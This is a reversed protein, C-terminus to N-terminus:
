RLYFGRLTYIFHGTITLSDKQWDDPLPWFPQADKLAKIAADDLMRYGSTRILEISILKGKKDIIFKIYLDGFIGREAAEPPYQWVREIKEKLRQLYGWDSFEKTSFSLGQSSEIEKNQTKNKSLKSIIDKDFIDPEKSLEKIAKIEDFQTKNRNADLKDPKTVPMHTDKKPISSLIKPEQPKKIPPIKELKSTEKQKEKKEYLKEQTPLILVSVPEAHPKQPKVTKQIFTFFSFILLHFILSYIIARKM